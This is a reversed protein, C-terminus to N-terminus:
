VQRVEMITGLAGLIYGVVSADAEAWVAEEGEHSHSLLPNPDGNALRSEAGCSKMQEYCDIEISLIGPTDGQMESVFVVVAGKCEPCCAVSPPVIFVTM